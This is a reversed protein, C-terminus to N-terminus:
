SGDTAALRGPCAPVSRAPWDRESAMPHCAAATDSEHDREPLMAPENVTWGDWDQEAEGRGPLVNEHTALLTAPLRSARVPLLKRNRHRQASLAPLREM